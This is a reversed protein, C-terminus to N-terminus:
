DDLDVEVIPEIGRERCFERAADVTEFRDSKRCEAVRKETGVQRGNEYRVVEELFARHRYLVYELADPARYPRIVARLLRRDDPGDLDDVTVDGISQTASEAFDSLNTTAM